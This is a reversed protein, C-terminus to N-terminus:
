YKQGIGYKSLLYSNSKIHIRGRGYALMPLGKRHIGVKVESTFLSFTSGYM